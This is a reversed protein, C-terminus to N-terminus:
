RLRYVTALAIIVLGIILLADPEILRRRKEAHYLQGAIAVATIIIVWLGTVAHTPSVHSLLPGRSALDIPLLLAMNFANSGFVNGVALGFAGMRATTIVAVMEPLSTSLAVFTTGMFTSGLGSLDAIVGASRAVFPGAFLIAIAAMGFVISVRLLQKRRDGTGFDLTWIPLTWLTRGKSKPAKSKPSQSKPSQVKEPAAKRALLRDLYLMRVGLAYAAFVLVSGMGVGWVAGDFRVMIWLSALGTLLMAIAGSLAHAASEISLMRGRSQHLLDAVALILLNALSSGMLDGVALDDLGRLAASVDVSLEPLSTAGALLVSGILLQGLGTLEALREAARALFIGAFVIVAASLVFEMIAQTM